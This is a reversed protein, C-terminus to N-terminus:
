KKEHNIKKHAFRTQFDDGTFYFSRQKEAGKEEQRHFFASMERPNSIM